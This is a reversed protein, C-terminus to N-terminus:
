STSSAPRDSRRFEARWRVVAPDAEAPIAEIRAAQLDEGSFSEVEARTLPWPPGEVPGEGRASAIVLLTGGPAVFRRVAAIAQGRLTDPLSQVTLSEVVLDYAGAREGPPELLDAVAYHVPSGPFRRRAGDVATASVDFADTRFGLGALHEADAGYGCGVVLARRGEGRLGASWEALLQHPAGRDWPVATEGREAQAYLREFWGTPDDSSLSEAALRRTHEEIDAM